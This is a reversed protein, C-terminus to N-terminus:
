ALPSFTQPCHKVAWTLDRPLWLIVSPLIRNGRFSSGSSPIDTKEPPPPGLYILSHGSELSTMKCVIFSHLLYVHLHVWSGEMVNENRFYAIQNEAEILRSFRVSEIETALYNHNPKQIWCIQCFKSGIDQRWWPWVARKDTLRTGYKQKGLM